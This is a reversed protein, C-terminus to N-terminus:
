NTSSEHLPRYFQLSNRSPDRLHFERTGWPTDAPVAWPSGDSTDPRVAGSERFEEFIADVDSVMFRFAPRDIPYAWQEADAWQVHLQVEDRQIGVYKPNKLDDQFVVVFGLTEYFRVVESVDRAGLVPHVAQLSASV